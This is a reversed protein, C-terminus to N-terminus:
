EAVQDRKDDKRDCGTACAGRLLTCLGSFDGLVEGGGLTNLADSLLAHEPCPFLACRQTGSRLRCCELSPAEIRPHISPLIHCQASPCTHEGALGPQRAKCGRGLPRRRGSIVGRSEIM